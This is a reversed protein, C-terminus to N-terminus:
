LESEKRRTNVVHVLLSIPKDAGDTKKLRSFIESHFSEAICILVPVVPRLFNYPCNPVFSLFDGAKVGVFVALVTTTGPHLEVLEAMNGLITHTPFDVV